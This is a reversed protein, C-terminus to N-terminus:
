TKLGGPPPSFYMLNDFKLMKARKKWTQKAVHV